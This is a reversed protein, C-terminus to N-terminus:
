GGNGGFRHIERGSPEVVSAQQMMKKFREIAATIIIAEQMLGLIEYLLSRNHGVSKPTVKLRLDKTETDYDVILQVKM